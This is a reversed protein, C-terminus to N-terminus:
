YFRLNGNEDLRAHIQNTPKYFTHKRNGVQIITDELVKQIKVSQDSPVCILTPSGSKTGTEEIDAGMSAYIEGGRVSGKVEVRGGARIVTQYCGQDTIKVDGSCYIKSNLAYPILVESTHEVSIQNLTILEQVRHGLRKLDQVNELHGVHAYVIDRVLCTAVDTWDTELKEKEKNVKDAMAKISPILTSFKKDLIIRIVESFKKSAFGSEQFGPSHILQELSQTLRNLHEMIKELQEGLETILINGKGANLTSSIVNQFIEISQGAVIEARSVTGRILIAGEAEVMMEEVVNGTVEVDGIFRINGSSLDVDQAHTLKPIVSVKVTLGKGEIQPRGYETAIVQGEEELWQAGKGAHVTLPHAPAPIIMEGTISLGTRGPEPLHVKAIVEGHHVSPIYQLERYDIKGNEREKPGGKKKDVDVLIELWGHKGEVAPEGKAILFSGKEKANCAQVMEHQRLGTKIGLEQLKNMIEPLELDNSPTKNDKLKVRLFKAPPQDEVVPVNKFGPQINLYAETKQQDLTVDWVTEEEKEEVITELVDNDRIPSADHIQQGNKFLIMGPSPCITPYHGLSCSFEIQGNTIWVLGDQESNAPAMSDSSEIHSPNLQTPPTEVFTTPDIHNQDPNENLITLRVVAPKAGWGLISKKGEELVVISVEERAANLLSLGIEIAENVTKGESVVNRQM